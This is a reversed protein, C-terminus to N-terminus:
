HRLRARPPQCPCRLPTEALYFGLVDAQTLYAGFVMVEDITGSLSHVEADATTGGWGGGITLVDRAGMRAPQPLAAAPVGDVYLRADSPGATLTLHYWAGAQVTPGGTIIQAALTSQIRAAMTGTSEVFGLDLDDEVWKDFVTESRSRVQWLGTIGPLVRYMINYNRGYLPVEDDVIPRPGVLSM